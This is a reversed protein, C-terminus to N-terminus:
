ARVMKSPTDDDSPRDMKTHTRGLLWSVVWGVGVGVGYERWEFYGSDGIARQETSQYGGFVMTIILALWPHREVIAGVIGGIALHACKNFLRM